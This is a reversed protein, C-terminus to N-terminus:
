PEKAKTLQTGQSGYGLLLGDMSRCNIEEKSWRLKWNWLDRDEVYEVMWPRAPPTILIMLGHPM